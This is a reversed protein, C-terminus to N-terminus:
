APFEELQLVLKVTTSVVGGETLQGAPPVNDASEFQWLDTGFTSGATVALSLQVGAPDSTIVWVGGAPVSTLRPVVGMMTVTVSWAPFEELHLVLRVTTSVVGGLKWHGVFTTRHLATPLIPATTAYVVGDAVSLQSWFGLTRQVGVEPNEKGM